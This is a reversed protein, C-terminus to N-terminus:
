WRHQAFRRFHVTMTQISQKIASHECNAAHQSHTRIATLTPLRQALTVSHRRYEPCDCTIILLTRQACEFCIGVMMVNLISQITHQKKEKLIEFGMIFIGIQLFCCLFPFGFKFALSRNLMRTSTHTHANMDILFNVM